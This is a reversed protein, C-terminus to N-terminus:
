MDEPTLGHSKLHARMGSTGYNKGHKYTKQCVKCQRMTGDKAFRFYNYVKSTKKCKLVSGSDSLGLDFADADYDM